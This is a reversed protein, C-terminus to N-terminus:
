LTVRPENDLGEYVISHRVLILGTEHALSHKNCRFSKSLDFCSGQYLNHFALLDLSMDVELLFPDEAVLTLIKKTRM